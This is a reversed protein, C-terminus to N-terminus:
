QNKQDIGETLDIWSQLFVSVPVQIDQGTADKARVTPETYANGQYFSYVTIFTIMSALFAGALAPIFLNLFKNSM